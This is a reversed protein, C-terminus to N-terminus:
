AADVDVRDGCRRVARPDAGAVNVECRARAGRPVRMGVSLRDPHGLADAEALAAAASYLDDARTVPDEELRALLVPVARRRAAEHHVDRDDLHSLVADRRVPALM